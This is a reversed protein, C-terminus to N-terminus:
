VMQWIPDAQRKGFALNQVDQDLSLAVLGCRQFQHALEQLFIAKDWVLEDRIVQSGISSCRTVEPDCNTILATPPPVITDLIRM